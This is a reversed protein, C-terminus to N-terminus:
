SLIGRKELLMYFYFLFGGTFYALIDYPDSTFALNHKPLYGEFVWSIYLTAFLIHYASFYYKTKRM